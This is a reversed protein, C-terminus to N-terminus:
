DIYGLGRLRGAVEEQNRQAAALVANRGGAQDRAWQLLALACDGHSLGAQRALDDLWTSLDAPLRVDLHVREQM